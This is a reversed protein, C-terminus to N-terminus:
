NVAPWLIECICYADLPEVFRGGNRLYKRLIECEACAYFMNRDINICTKVVKKIRIFKVSNASFKGFFFVLSTLVVVLVCTCSDDFKGVNRQM